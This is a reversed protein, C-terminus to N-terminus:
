YMSSYFVNSVADYTFTNNVDLNSSNIQGIYMNETATTGDFEPFANNTVLSLLKVMATGHATIAFGGEPCHIVAIDKVGLEFFKQLIKKIKNWM